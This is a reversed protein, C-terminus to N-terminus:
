TKCRLPDSHFAIIDAKDTSYNPRQDLMPSIAEHFVNDFRATKRKLGFSFRFSMPTSGDNQVVPDFVTSLQEYARLCDGVTMRLRGLM